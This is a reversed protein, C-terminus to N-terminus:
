PHAKGKRKKQERRTEPSQQVKEGTSDNRESSVQADANRLRLEICLVRPSGLGHVVIHAGSEALKQAVVRGVGDTSGTVLITRGELKM